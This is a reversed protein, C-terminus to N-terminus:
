FAQGISLHLTLRSLIQRIGSGSGQLPNYLKPTLLHVITPAGTSDPVQTVVPLRETLDPRIGLDVRIPGLPSYYRVGFGPTIAGTGSLFNHVGHESVMAADVFVAGGINKWLPFRYEVSGEVVANGGLPRPLFDSSPAVDPDCTATAISQVTCGHELLKQPDVTLIRPGLENEGYGRVSQAGGAYFRKRPHVIAAGTTDSVGLAQNTTPLAHVWGLRLRVALVAHNGAPIYKAADASIRNYRYDSLTVASAHELDVEARYGRTANLPDNSRDVVAGIVIPSLTRRGRLATITPTECVGFNVCFYVDGAQVETREYRYVISVPSRQAVQRTFSASAGYGRDIFVAPASQRHAFLELGLSNRSSHFFPQTLSASATWNPQLYIRETEGTLSRPTVDLFIFRGNLMPALLNGVVGQLELRRAHGRWNYNSYRAEIQGFDATNFGLSAHVEHLPAETVAVDLEKASDRTSAVTITARKFLSSQYLNRESETLDGRRFVDGHRVTLMNRITRSSVQTNGSVKVAAVTTRSGPQITMTVRAVRASDDVIVTDTVVADAYGEDWYSNRFLVLSSDLAILDLPDGIHLLLIDRARARSVVRAPSAIALTKVVTPPGEAVHFVIRVGENLRTVTTDVQTARYGRKWYFVRIRLVDRALELHNLRHQDIFVHFVCFPELLVSQCKPPQTALRTRLADENVAHVGTFEVREIVPM